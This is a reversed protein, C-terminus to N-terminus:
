SVILSRQLNGFLSCYAIVTIDDGATANVTFEYMNFLFRQQSTYQESIYLDGNKEVDIKYVYHITRAFTPHLISVSLKEPEYSIKMFRPSHASAQIGLLTISVVVVVLVLGIRHYKM